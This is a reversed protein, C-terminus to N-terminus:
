FLGPTRRRTAVVLVATAIIVEALSVTTAVGMLASVPEASAPFGAAGHRHEPLSWHLGIMALNMVAVVCWTRLSGGRWLEYGCYLCVLAMATMLVGLVVNGAHGLLMLHLAASAVALVACVRRGYVGM